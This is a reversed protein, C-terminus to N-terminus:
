EVKTLIVDTPVSYEPAENVIIGSGRKVKWRLTAPSESLLEVTIRGIKIPSYLNSNVTNDNFSGGILLDNDYTMYIVYNDWATNIGQYKEKDSCYIYTEVGDLVSVKEYHGRMNQGDTDLWLIARFIESGTQYEWTGSFPSVTTNIVAGDNGIQGNVNYTAFLTVILILKIIKKM